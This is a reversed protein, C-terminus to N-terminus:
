RTRERWGCRPGCAGRATGGPAARRLGACRWSDPHAANADAWGQLAAGAGSPPGQRGGGLSRRHASAGRSPPIGARCSARPDGPGRAVDPLQDDRTVRSERRAAAPDERVDSTGCRLTSPTSRASWIPRRTESHATSLHFRHAPSNYIGRVLL